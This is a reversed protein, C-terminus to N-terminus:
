LICHYHGWLDWVPSRGDLTRGALREARPFPGLYGDADQAAVLEEVFREISAYLRPDNSLRLALVASTLYKGAFEGAWPVLDRRPQRDRDRFMELMAPNALPAPLLWQELNATM